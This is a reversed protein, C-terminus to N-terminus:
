RIAIENFEIEIKRLLDRVGVSQNGWKVKNTEPDIVYIECVLDGHKQYWVVFSKPGSFHPSLLEISDIAVRLLSLANEESVGARVFLRNKNPAKASVFALCGTNAPYLQLENPNECIAIEAFSLLLTLWILHCKM